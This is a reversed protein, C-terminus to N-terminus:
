LESRDRPSLYFHSADMQAGSAKLKQTLTPALEAAKLVDGTMIPVPEAGVGFLKINPIGEKLVGLGKAVPINEKHDINLAGWHLGEVMSTLQEWEPKFAQCSGCMGSYFKVAWVHDSQAITSEWSDATLETPKEHDHGHHDDDDHDHGHDHGHDHDAHASVVAAAAVIALLAARRPGSPM